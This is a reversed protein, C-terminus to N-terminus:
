KKINCIWKKGGLVFLILSLVLEAIIKITNFNWTEEAVRLTIAMVPQIAIFCYALSGLNRFISELFAPAFDKVFLKVVFFPFEIRM